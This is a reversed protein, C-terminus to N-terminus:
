IMFFQMLDSFRDALCIKAKELLETEDIKVVKCPGIGKVGENYDTGLLCCKYVLNQRSSSKFLTMLDDLTTYQYFKPFVQKIMMEAGFLALCDFDESLVPLGANGIYRDSEFYDQSQPYVGKPINIYLVLKDLNNLLYSEFANNCKILEDIDLMNSRFNKICKQLHKYKEARKLKRSKFKCKNKSSMVMLYSQINLQDVEQQIYAMANEVVRKEEDKISILLNYTSTIKEHLPRNVYNLRLYRFLRSRVDVLITSISQESHLCESFVVKKALHKYM